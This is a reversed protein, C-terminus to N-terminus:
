PRDSPRTLLRVEAVGADRLIELREVLVAAEASADAKVRLAEGPHGTQWAAARMALDRLEVPERGLAMRGDRALLLVDAEVGSAPAARTAQPPDVGLIDPPGFRGLMLFFILLLFAVNIMPVMDIDTRPVRKPLPIKM